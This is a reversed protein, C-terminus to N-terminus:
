FPNQILQCGEGRVTQSRLIGRRAEGDSEKQTLLAAQSPVDAEYRVAMDSYKRVM